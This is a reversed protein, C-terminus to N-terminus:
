YANKPKCSWLTSLGYVIGKLLVCVELLAVRKEMKVDMVAETRAVEIRGRGWALSQKRLGDIRCAKSRGAMLVGGAVISSFCSGDMPWSMERGDELEVTAEYVCCRCPLWADIWSGAKDVSADTADFLGMACSALLSLLTLTLLSVGSCLIGDGGLYTPLRAHLPQTLHIDVISELV